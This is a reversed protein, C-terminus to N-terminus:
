ASVEGLLGETDQIAEDMLRLNTAADERAKKLEALQRRVDEPDNKFAIKLLKRRLSRPAYQWASM